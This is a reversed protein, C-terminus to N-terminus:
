RPPKVESVSAVRVSGLRSLDRVRASSEDRDRSFRTSIDATRGSGRCLVSAGSRVAAGPAATEPVRARVAVARPERTLVTVDPVRSQALADLFADVREPASGRMLLPDGAPGSSLHVARDEGQLERSRAWNPQDIVIRAEVATPM